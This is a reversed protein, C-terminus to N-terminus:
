APALASMERRLLAPLGDPSGGTRALVATVSVRNRALPLYFFPDEGLLRLGSANAAVGVMRIAQRRADPGTVFTVGVPNAAGWLGFPMRNALRIDNLM